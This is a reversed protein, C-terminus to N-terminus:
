EKPPRDQVSGRGVSRGGHFREAIARQREIAASEAAIAQGLAHYDGRKLADMGAEHAQCFDDKVKAFERLAQAMLDDDDMECSTYLPACTVTDLAGGLRPPLIWVSDPSLGHSSLVGNQEDGEGRDAGGQGTM